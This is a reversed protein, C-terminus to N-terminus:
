CEMCKLRSYKEIIFFDEDNHLLPVNHAIACSAIICDITKRVSKGKARAKRYIEASLLYNEKSLPLYILFDLFKVAQKFQSDGQIGQLIETLVPGCICIDEGEELARTLYATKVTEHGRFFDIWVTTDVLFM